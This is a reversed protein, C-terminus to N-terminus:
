FHHHFAYCKLLIIQYSTFTIAPTLHMFIPAMIKLSGLRLDWQESRMSFYLGLYPLMSKTVFERWFHWTDDQEGMSDCFSNFKKHLDYGNPSDSIFEQIKIFAAIQESSSKQEGLSKEEGIKEIKSSLTQLYDLHNKDTDASLSEYFADIQCRLVAHFSQILFNHTRQFNGCKELSNLIKTKNGAKEAM